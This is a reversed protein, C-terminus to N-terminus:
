SPNWENTQRNTKLDMTTTEHINKQTITTTRTRTIFQLFLADNWKVMEIMREKHIHEHKELSHTLLYTLLCSYTHMSGLTM